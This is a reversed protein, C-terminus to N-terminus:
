FFTVIPHVAEALITAMKQHVDENMHVGDVTDHVNFEKGGLKSWVDIVPVQLSQGVGHVAAQIQGNVVDKKIGWAAACNQNQPHATVPPPTVLYIKPKSPLTKLQLIMKAFGARIALDQDCGKGDNTGLMITVIDPKSELAQTWLETNM